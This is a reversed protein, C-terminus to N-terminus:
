PVLAHMEPPKRASTVARESSNSSSRKSEIGSVRLSYMWCSVMSAALLYLSLMYSHESTAAQTIGRRM